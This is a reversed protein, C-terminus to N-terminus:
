AAFDNMPQSMNASAVGASYGSDYHRLREPAARVPVQAIVAPMRSAFSISDMPTMEFAMWSRPSPAMSLTTQSVAAPESCITIFFTM